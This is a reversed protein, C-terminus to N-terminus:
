RGKFSWPKRYYKLLINLDHPEINLPEVKVRESGGPFSYELIPRPGKGSYVGSVREETIEDWKYFPSTSTEIGEKSIIVQPNNNFLPKISIVLYWLSILLLLTGFFYAETSLCFTSIGFLMLSFIIRIVATDKAYYIRVVDPIPNSVIIPPTIISM